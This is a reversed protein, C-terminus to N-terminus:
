VRFLQVLFVLTALLGVNYAITRLVTIGALYSLAHVLRAALFVEAALVTFQNSLHLHAAILVLIAFPLLNELLNRHARLGRGAFGAPEAVQDRNSTIGAFGVQKSYAQSYILPLLLAVFVLVVLVYFEITM